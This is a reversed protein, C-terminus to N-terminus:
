VKTFNLKQSLLRISVAILFRPGDILDRRWLKKPARMLRYAWEFGANGVWEPCRPVSGAIFRFGAGVGIAVPVRLRDRRAAIWCDQKPSGLGVWLVDPKATNIMDIIADDEEKTPPRFPPSFTGVVQHGPYDAELRTRLGTLPECTDGCFFSRYGCRSARAFFSRMLDAGTVRGVDKINQMRAIWIPAIGDPLWLDASRVAACVNRDRHAEWIAHFGSVVIQRCREQPQAIWNEIQNLADETTKLHVVSGLVNVRQGSNASM